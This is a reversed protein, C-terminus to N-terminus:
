VGRATTVHGHLQDQGPDWNGDDDIWPKQNQLTMTIVGTNRYTSATNCECVTIKNWLKFNMGEHLQASDPLIVEEENLDAAAVWGTFDTSRPDSGVGYYSEIEQKVGDLENEDLYRPNDFGSFTIAVNGNSQITAQISDAYYEGPKRVFWTWKTGLFSWKSWQAVQVETTFETTRVRVNSPGAETPMNSYAAALDTPEGTEANFAGVYTQADAGAGALGVAFVVALVLALYRKM